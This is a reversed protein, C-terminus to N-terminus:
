AMSSHINSLNLLDSHETIAAGYQKLYVPADMGGVSMVCSEGKGEREEM